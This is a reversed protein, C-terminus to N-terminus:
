DFYYYLEVDHLCSHEEKLKFERWGKILYADRIKNFIMINNKMINFLGKPLTCSIMCEQKVKLPDYDV